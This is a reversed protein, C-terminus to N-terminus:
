LYALEPLQVKHHTSSGSSQTLGKEKEKYSLIIQKKTAEQQGEAYAECRDEQIDVNEKQRTTQLSTSHDGVIYVLASVQSM